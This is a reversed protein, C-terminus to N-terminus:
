YFIFSLINERGETQLTCTGAKEICRKGKASVLGLTTYAPFFNCLVPRMVKVRFSIESLYWGWLVSISKSGQKWSWAEKGLFESMGACLNWTSSWAWNANIWPQYRPCQLYHCNYPDRVSDASVSSGRSSRVGLVLLSACRMIWLSAVSPFSPLLFLILATERKKSLPQWFLCQCCTAM